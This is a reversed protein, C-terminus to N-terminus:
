VYTCIHICVSAYVYRFCFLLSPKQHQNAKSTAQKAKRKRKALAAQRHIHTLLRAPLLYVYAPMCIPARSDFARHDYRLSSWFDPYTM